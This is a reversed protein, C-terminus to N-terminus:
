RCAVLLEYSNAPLASVRIVEFRNAAYDSGAYVGASMLSDPEAPLGQRGDAVLSSRGVTRASCPRSLLTTADLFNTPLPLTEGVVDVEGTIDVQGNVGRNSSANVNEIPGLFFETTITIDGGSGELAQATIRSTEDLIVFIPDIEIDGGDGQGAGAADVAASTTIASGDSLRLIRAVNVSIDGADAEDTEVNIASGGSLFLSDTAMVSISGSEGEETQPDNDANISRAGILAGTDLEIQGAQVVISGGAGTGSTSAVLSAGNSVALRETSFSLSGAAGSGATETSVLTSAGDLVARHQAGANSRPSITVEGGAGTGLTQNTVVAGNALTLDDVRLEINGSRGSFTSSAEITAADLTARSTAIRIGGGNGSGTTSASIRGANARLLDTEIDIMGGAGTTSTAASIEAGGRVSIESAQRITISGANGTLGDNQDTLVAATAISSPTGDQAVGDIAVSGGPALISIAGGAGLGETNATVRAGGAVTLRNTTIDLKGGAGTATTRTTIESGEGNLAVTDANITTSGLGDRSATESTIRGGNEVRLERATIAITGALGEGTSTSQIAGMDAVRLIANPAEIFIQGGEGSGSNITNSAIRSGNEAAGAIEILDEAAIRVTGSAGESNGITTADIQSGATVRVERATIDVSGPQSATPVAQVISRNQLVVEGGSMSVDNTVVLASNVVLQGNYIAAVGADDAFAVDAATSGVSTLQVRGDPTFLAPVFANGNVEIDGASVSITQGPLALFTENTVVSARGAGLFGFSAPPAASLLADEGGPVANFNVGDALKLSDATGVHFSGNIALSAQPGFVMGNPNFLYLHTAGFGQATIVGNINSADLSSIRGLINTTTTAFAPDLNSFAVIDGAGIDFDSFGHFLNAGGGPRFGGSITWLNPVVPHQEVLTNLSSGDPAVSTQAQTCLAAGSMVTTALIKLLYQMQCDAM